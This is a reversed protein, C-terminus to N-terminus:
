LSSRLTGVVFTTIRLVGDAGQCASARLKPIKYVVGMGDEGLKKIIKYHSITTDIM